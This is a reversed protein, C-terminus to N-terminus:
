TFSPLLAKVWYQRMKEGLFTLVQTIAFPLAERVWEGRRGSTSRLKSKVPSAKMM